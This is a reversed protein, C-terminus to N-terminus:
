NNHGVTRRIENVYEFHQDHWKDHKFIIKNMKILKISLLPIMYFITYWLDAILNLQQYAFGMCTSLSCVVSIDEHDLFDFDMWFITVKVIVNWQDLNFGFHIKVLWKSVISIVNLWYTKWCTLLVFIQVPLAPTM